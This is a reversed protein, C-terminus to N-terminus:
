GYKPFWVDYIYSTKFSMNVGRFPLSYCAGGPIFPSHAINLGKTLYAGLRYKNMIPHPLELWPRM